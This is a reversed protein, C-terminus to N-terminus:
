CKTPIEIFKNDRCHLDKILEKLLIPPIVYANTVGINDKSNSSKTRQATYLHKGYKQKNDCPTLKNCIKLNLDKMNTWINTMKRYEFGYKCYCCTHKYRELPIMFDRHQLLGGDAPNEIFWYKPKFYNIIEITRKVINDALYLNRPKRRHAKSYETCPPSAWIIDFSNSLYKDKYNWELIDCQITPNYRKMIDLTIIECHANEKLVENSFSKTGCFLEMIKM